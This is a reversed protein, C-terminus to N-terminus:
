GNFSIILIYKFYDSFAYQKYRIEFIKKGHLYKWAIYNFAMAM